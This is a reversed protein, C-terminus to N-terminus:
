RKRCKPELKNAAKATHSLSNKASKYFSSKNNKSINDESKIISVKGKKM